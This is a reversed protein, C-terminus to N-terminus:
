PDLELTAPGTGGEAAPAAVVADSVARWLMKQSGREMWAFWPYAPLGHVVPALAQPDNPRADPAAADFEARLHPYLTDAWRRRMALVFDLAAREDLGVSM